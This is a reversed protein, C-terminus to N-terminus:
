ADESLADSSLECLLSALEVDLIDADAECTLWTDLDPLYTDIVFQPMYTHSPM